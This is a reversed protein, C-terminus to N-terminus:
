WTLPVRHARIAEGGTLEAPLEVTVPMAHDNHPLQRVISLVKEPDM